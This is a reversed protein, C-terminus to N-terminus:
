NRHSNNCKKLVKFLEEHLMDRSYKNRIEVLVQTKNQLETFSINKLLQSLELSSFGCSWGIYNSTVFKSSDNEGLVIIPLFAAMYDFIKNPISSTIMPLIGIDMDNLYNGVENREVKGIINVNDISNDKIYKVVESYREGTGDEGIITLSINRENCMVELVPMIDIQHQLQAICVLNLVSKNEGQKHTIGEWRSNEWGLPIFVSPVGSAYRHLWCVFSPAVNFSYNYYKLSKYLFWNCYNTFIKEKKSDGVKLADPWIDQIDIVICNKRIRKILSIFYILEVPRSPLLIVDDKRIKFLLKFFVSVSFFFNSFVRKASINKSYKLVRIIRLKYVCNKKAEIIESKKFMRKEAHYFNSTLYEVSVGKSVLFSAINPFRNGRKTLVSETPGILFIKNKM